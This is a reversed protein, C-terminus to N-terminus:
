NTLSQVTKYTNKYPKIPYWFGVVQPLIHFKELCGLFFDASCCTRGEVKSAKGLLLMMQHLVAKKFVTPSFFIMSHYDNYLVRWHFLTTSCIRVLVIKWSCTLCWKGVNFVNELLGGCSISRVGGPSVEPSSLSDVTATYRHPKQRFALVGQRDPLPASPRFPLNRKPLNHHKKSHATFLGPVALLIVFLHLYLLLNRILIFLHVLLMWSLPKLMVPVLRFFPM